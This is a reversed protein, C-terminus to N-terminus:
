KKEKYKKCWTSHTTNCKEAGCECINLASCAEATGCTERYFEDEHWWWVTSTKFRWVKSNNNYCETLVQPKAMTVRDWLMPDLRNLVEPKLFVVDGVSYAIVM